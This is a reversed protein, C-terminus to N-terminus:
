AKGMLQPVQARMGARRTVLQEYGQMFVPSAGLVRKGQGDDASKFDEPYVDILKVDFDSDTGTSAIKLKPKVPGAITVDETLPKRRSSICGSCGSARRVLSTMMWTASRFRTRDHVGCGAVPHAPDSVYEDKSAKETPVTWALKRWRTPLLLMKATVGAPPWTDYKKWVNSGTEFTYAKPM